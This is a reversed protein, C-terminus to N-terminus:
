RAPLVPAGFSGNRGTRGGAWGSCSMLTLGSQRRPRCSWQQRCQLECRPRSGPGICSRGRRADWCGFRFLEGLGMDGDRRSWQLAGLRSACGLWGIAAGQQADNNGTGIVIHGGANRTSPARRGQPGTDPAPLVRVVTRLTHFHCINASVYGYDPASTM